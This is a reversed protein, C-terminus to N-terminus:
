VTNQMTNPKANIHNNYQVSLSNKMKLGRYIFAQIFQQISSIIMFGGARDPVLTSM